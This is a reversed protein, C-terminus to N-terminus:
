PGVFFQGADKGLEVPDRPSSFYITSAILGGLGIAFLAAIGARAYAGSRDQPSPLEYAKTRDQTSPPANVSVSTSM